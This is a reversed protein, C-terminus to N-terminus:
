EVAEFDLKLPIKKLRDKLKKRIEPTSKPHYYSYICKKTFVDYTEIAEYHGSDKGNECYLLTSKQILSRNRTQIKMYFNYDKVPIDNPNTGTKTTKPSLLAINYQVLRTQRYINLYIFKKGEEGNGKFTNRMLVDYDYLEINVDYIPLNFKNELDFHINPIVNGIRTIRMIPFADGGSIYTEIFNSKKLLESNLSDIKKNQKEIKKDRAKLTSELEETKETVTNRTEQHAGMNSQNDKWAGITQQVGLIIAGLGGLLIFIYAIITWTNFM